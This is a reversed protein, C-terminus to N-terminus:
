TSLPCTYKRRRVLQAALEGLRDYAGAAYRQEIVINRGELYGHAYLGSRFANLEKENPGAARMFGIRAIKAPQQARTTLPWAAASGGLLTIFDRRQMDDEL